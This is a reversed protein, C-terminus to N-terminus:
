SWWREQEQGQELCQPVLDSFCQIVSAGFCQHLAEQEQRHRKVIFLLMFRTAVRVVAAPEEAGRFCCLTPAEHRTGQVAATGQVPSETGRVSPAKTSRHRLCPCSWSLHHDDAEQNVEDHRMTLRASSIQSYILAYLAVIIGCRNWLLEVHNWMPRCAKGMEVSVRFCAPWSARWGAV